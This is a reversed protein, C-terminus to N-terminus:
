SEKTWRHISTVRIRCNWRDEIGAILEQADHRVRERLRGDEYGLSNNAENPEESERISEGSAQRRSPSRAHPKAVSFRINMLEIRGSKDTAPSPTPMPSTVEASKLM